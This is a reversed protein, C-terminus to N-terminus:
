WPTQGAFNPCLKLLYEAFPHRRLNACSLRQESVTWPTEQQAIAPCPDQFQLVPVVIVMADVTPTKTHTGYLIADLPFTCSNTAATLWLFAMYWDRSMFFDGPLTFLSTCARWVEGEIRTKKLLLGAIDHEETTSIRRSSRMARLLIKWNFHHAKKSIIPM